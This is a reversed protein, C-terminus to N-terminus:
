KKWFQPTFLILIYFIELRGILMAFILLWKSPIDLTGFDVKLNDIGYGSNTLSSTVAAFSEELNHGLVMFILVLFIYIAIFASVFSCVAQLTSEPIINKGLKIPLVAKPHLLLFLERKSQKFILLARLVKVGGGTSAACGGIIMLLMALFPVFTRWNTIPELDFGTTTVLSITTFFSTVVTHFNFGLLSHKILTVTIILSAIFIISLYFRFEEDRWYAKLSIHKLAMFHLSFNTGGLVMFICAILRITENKYHAFSGDHMSFGGTSVTGFSEGIADFWSMGSIFYCCACTITLLLYVLWIIKATQTIRPALKTDKMPGPIETRFLQMGGVGLMPLIAVALIVVGIGGILQLQQRYYLIAHPLLDLNTIISAGTTTIGSVTEFIADTIHTLDTLILLFPLSAFFSLMFWFLVVLIFGDRIKLESKYDKFTLYLGLGISFTFIYSVLFPHWVHEKFIFNIILPTLMSQSFILLLVGLLRLITKYQM